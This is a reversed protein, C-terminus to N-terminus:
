QFSVLPQNRAHDSRSDAAERFGNQLSRDHWSPHARKTCRDRRQRTPTVQQKLRMGCHSVPQGGHPGGNPAAGRKATLQQSSEQQSQRMTDLSQAPTRDKLAGCHLNSSNFAQKTQPIGLRSVSARVNVNNPSLPSDLVLDITSHCELELGSSKSSLKLRSRAPIYNKHSHASSPLFCTEPAAPQAQASHRREHGRIQTATDIM